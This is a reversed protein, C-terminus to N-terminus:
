LVGELQLLAIKRDLGGSYGTLAGNAGIVRHCPVIVSVPNAGVAAGLARVARPRGIQAALAGYSTTQGFPLTTLAQWVDRQFATGRSLDLPMSFVRLTGAFYAQLESAAQRLLPHDPTDTRNGVDPTDRQHHTFWAGALGAPSAALLVEGLPTQCRLTPLSDPLKDIM